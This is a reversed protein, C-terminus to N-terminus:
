ACAAVRPCTSSQSFALTMGGAPGRFEDPEAMTRVEFREDALAHTPEYPPGSHVVRISPRGIGAQLSLHDLVDCWRGFVTEHATLWLELTMRQTLKALPSPVLGGALLICTELRPGAM